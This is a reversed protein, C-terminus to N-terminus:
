ALFGLVSGIAPAYEWVLEILTRLFRLLSEARDWDVARLAEAARDLLTRPAGSAEVIEVLTRGVEETFERVIIVLFKSEYNPFYFAKAQDLPLLWESTGMFAKGNPAYECKVKWTAIDAPVEFPPLRTLLETETFPPKTV